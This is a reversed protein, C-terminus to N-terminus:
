FSYTTTCRIERPDVVDYRSYAMGHGGPLVLTANPILLRMPIIATNDFLNSINIQFSFKGPLGLFKRTYRLMLDAFALARGTLERGNVDTGIVNASRWRGGGGFTFGKLFGEKFDYATFLSIRHPRLGWRKEQDQKAQNMEDILNFLEQAVTVSASTTLTTPNAGPNRAGLELWKAVAGGAAYASPDVIFQGTANQSVGQALGGAANTKLGYWPIIEAFVGKRVSDSYSYNAVLRWNSTLNTTVRVEYGSSDFDSLSSSVQPTYASYVPYWQSTSFPRGTGVLV